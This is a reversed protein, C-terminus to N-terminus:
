LCLPKRAFFRHLSPRKEYYYAVGFQLAIGSIILLSDSFFTGTMVTKLVQGVMAFVTGTVFVPLSHKGLIALPHKEA